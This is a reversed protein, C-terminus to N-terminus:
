RRQVLKYLEMVVLISAAMVVLLGFQGPSIPAVELVSQMFPTNIALLHLALVAPVGLVVFRNNRLPVRFASTHESRTNFVHFNQFLVMLTLVLSRAVEETYGTGLLWYWLGITGAFMVAGSLLVQQIMLPNFIGESPDRPKRQMTGPEGGEFALAVGQIGNTVLNLWLLQIALLPLPLGILVAALFLAIEAAGTSVLLYIVKRVNEYAIRGERVGDVISAFNDDTVIISATDKAVDTGSGMAVGINASRLAPADNVGDGTVAVFHGDARLVEVIRLKQLPSVRAFVRKNRVRDAFAPDHPSDTEPLERGVVVDDTRAIGLNRAIALATAPHDGTVMAVDVGAARCTDVAQKAEPRLPDIMGILGLLTLRPLDSEQMDNDSAPAGGGAGHAVAIVRYGEAALQNAQEVIATHDVPHLEGDRELTDCFHLVRETAGKMTVRVEDDKRVAVAAYQRESEYPIRGV